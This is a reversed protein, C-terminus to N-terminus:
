RKCLIYISITHKYICVTFQHAYVCRTPSLTLTTYSVPRPEIIQSQCSHLWPWADRGGRLPAQPRQAAQCCIFGHLLGAINQRVYCEGGHRDCCGDAEQGITAAEEEHKLSEGDLVWAPSRLELLDAQHRGDAM